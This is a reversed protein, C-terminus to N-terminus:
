LLSPYVLFFMWTGVTEADLGGLRVVWVARGTSGAYVIIIIIIIASRPPRKTAPTAPEFGASPM